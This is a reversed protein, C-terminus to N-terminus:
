SRLKFMFLLVTISHFIIRLSSTFLDFCRDSPFFIRNNKFLNIELSILIKETLTM